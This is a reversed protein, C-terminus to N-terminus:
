VLPVSIAGKGEFRLRSGHCCDHLVQFKGEPQQSFAWAEGEDGDEDHGEADSGVGGDEADNM